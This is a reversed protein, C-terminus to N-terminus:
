LSRRRLARHIGILPLGILALALAPPAPVPATVVTSGATDGLTSGPIITGGSLPQPTILVTQQIAYTDPVNTGTTPTIRTPPIAPVPLIDTAVDSQMGLPNLGSAITGSFLQTQNTVINSGTIDGTPGLIATSAGASNTGTANSGTFPNTFADSTVTVKIEFFNSGSMATKTQATVATTMSGILSSPNVSVQISSFDATSANAMTGSFTQVAGVAVGNSDLEQILIQTDAKSTGAGLCVAAVCVAWRVNRVFM